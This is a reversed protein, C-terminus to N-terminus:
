ESGKKKFRGRSDRQYTKKPEKYQENDSLFYDPTPIKSNYLRRFYEGRFKVYDDISFNINHKILENSLLTFIEPIDEITKDKSCVSIVFDNLIKYQTPNYLNFPIRPANPWVIGESVDNTFKVGFLGLFKKFIGM